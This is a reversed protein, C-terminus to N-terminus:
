PATRLKTSWYKSSIALDGSEVYEDFRYGKETASNIVRERTEELTIYIAREGQELAHNLFQLGFTTKGTGASGITVILSREPVGGQIMRDLGDIGLEIRPLASDVEEDFDPEEGGLDFDLDDFGAPGTDDGVDPVSADQLASAFDQDFLSDGRESEVADGAGAADGASVADGGGATAGDAGRLPGDLAGLTDDGNDTSEDVDAGDSEDEVADTSGDVDTEESTSRDDESTERDRLAREFWDDNLDNSVSVM